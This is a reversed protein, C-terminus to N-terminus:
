HLTPLMQLLMANAISTIICPTYPIKVIIYQEPEHVMQDIRNSVIQRARRIKARMKMTSNSQEGSYLFVSFCCDDM